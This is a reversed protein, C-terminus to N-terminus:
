LLLSAYASQFVNWLYSFVTGGSNFLCPPVPPKGPNLLFRIMDAVAADWRLFVIRADFVRSLRGSSHLSHFSLSPFKDHSELPTPIIGFLIETGGSSLFPSPRASRFNMFPM